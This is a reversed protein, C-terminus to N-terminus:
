GGSGCGSDDVVVEAMGAGWVVVDTIDREPFDAFSVSACLLLAVAIALVKKM